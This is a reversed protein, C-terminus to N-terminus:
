AYVTEIDLNDWDGVGKSVLSKLYENMAKIENTENTGHFTNAIRKNNEKVVFSWGCRRGYAHTESMVIKRKNKEHYYKKVQELYFRLDEEINFSQFVHGDIWKGRFKSISYIEKYDQGNIGLDEFSVVYRGNGNVDKAIKYVKLNRGEIEVTKFAEKLKEIM